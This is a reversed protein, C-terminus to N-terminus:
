KVSGGAKEIAQKAGESVVLGVVKLKKKIEGRGLVKVTPNKGAVKKLVGSSVLTKVSVIDGDKFTNELTDINVVSARL